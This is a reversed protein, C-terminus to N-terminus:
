ANWLQPLLVLLQPLAAVEEDQAHHGPNLFFLKINKGKQEMARLNAVAPDIPFIKKPRSGQSYIALSDRLSTSSRSYRMFDGINAQNLSTKTWQLDQLLPAQQQPSPFKKKQPRAPCGKSARRGKPQNIFRCFKIGSSTNRGPKTYFWIKLWLVNKKGM